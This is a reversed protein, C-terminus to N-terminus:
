CCPERCGMNRTVIHLGAEVEILLLQQCALRLPSRHCMQLILCERARHLSQASGFAVLRM